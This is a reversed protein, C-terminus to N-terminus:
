SVLRDLYLNQTNYSDDYFKDDISHAFLLGFGSQFNLSISSPPHSAPLDWLMLRPASLLPQLPGHLNLLVACYRLFNLVFYRLAFLLHPVAPSVDPLFKLGSSSFLSNVTSFAHNPRFTSTQVELSCLATTETRTLFIMFVRQILTELVSDNSNFLYHRLLVPASGRVARLKDLSDLEDTFSLEDTVTRHQPLVFEDEGIWRLRQNAM